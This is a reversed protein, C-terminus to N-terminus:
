VWIQWIVNFKKLSIKTVDNWVIGEDIGTDAIDEDNDDNSNIKTYQRVILDITAAVSDDKSQLTWIWETQPLSEIMAVFLDAAKGCRRKNEPDGAVRKRQYAELSFLYGKTNMSLIATIKPDLCNKAYRRTEEELLSFVLNSFFLEFLEVASTDRYTSHDGPPFESKLKELDGLLDELKLQRGCFTDPVLENEDGSDENTLEHSDPPTIFINTVSSSLSVAAVFVNRRMCGSIMLGSSRSSRCMDMPIIQTGSGRVMLLRPWSM